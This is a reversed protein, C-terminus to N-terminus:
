ESEGEKSGCLRDAIAELTKKAQPTVPLKRLFEADAKAQDFDIM